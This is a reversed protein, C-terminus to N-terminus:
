PKVVRLEQPVFRPIFNVIPYRSGSDPELLEGQKVRGKELVYRENLELPRGTKPCVLYNLHDLRM